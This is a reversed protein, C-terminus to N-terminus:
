YMKVKMVHRRAEDLCKQCIFSVQFFDCSFHSHSKRDVLSYRSLLIRSWDFNSCKVKVNGFMKQNTIKKRNYTERIHNTSENKKKLVYIKLSPCSAILVPSCEIIEISHVM